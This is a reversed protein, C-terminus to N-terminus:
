AACPRGTVPRPNPKIFIAHFYKSEKISLACLASVTRASKVPPGPPRISCVLCRRRPFKRRRKQKEQVMRLPAPGCPLSATSPRGRKQQWRGRVPRLSVGRRPQRAPGGGTSLPIVISIIEITSVNHTSSAAMRTNKIFRPNAETSAPKARALFVTLMRDLFKITKATDDKPKMSSPHPSINPPSLGKTPM